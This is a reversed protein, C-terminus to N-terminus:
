VRVSVGSMKRKLVFISKVAIPAYVSSVCDQVIGDPEVNESKM